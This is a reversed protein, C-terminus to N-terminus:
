LWAAVTKAIRSLSNKFQSYKVELVCNGYPISSCWGDVTFAIYPKPCARALHLTSTDIHIGGIAKDMLGLLDYIRHCHINSLDIIDLYPRLHGLSAFLAQKYPFPSSVGSTNVVIFPKGNTKPLHSAERQPSRRDFVLPLEPMLSLPVGTRDWMSTMFNPWRKIDVGWNLAHCQLVTAEGFHKQGYEIATPMGHFWSLPLPKADIYSAGELVSGYDAACILIPPCGTTDAVHKLAPLLLIIDGFRGLQIFAKAKIGARKRLLNILTGDKNRHYLVSKPNIFNLDFTHTGTIRHEAFTPPDGAMGWLHCFLDSSKAIPALYSATPLDFAMDPAGIIFGSLEDYAEPCYMGVGTFHVKPLRPDDCPVLRGMYKSGSARYHIEILDAWKPKLPVADPELFLWPENRQKAFQAATLFLSNAGPVWGVVPKENTIVDVSDFSLLADKKLDLIASAPTAADAVIVASHGHCGSLQACWTLLNKLRSLDGTHVPLAVLV